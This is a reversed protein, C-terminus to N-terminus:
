MSDPLATNYLTFNKPIRYPFTAAFATGEVYIVSVFELSSKNYKSGYLYCSDCM